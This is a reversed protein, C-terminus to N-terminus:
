QIRKISVLNADMGIAQFEFEVQQGPTLGQLQEAQKAKFAMTMAPWKMEPVPKHAITVTMKKTDVSKVTGSSKATKADAAMKMDKSDMDKMDAAHAVGGGIAFVTLALIILAAKM